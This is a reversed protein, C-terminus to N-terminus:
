APVAAPPRGLGLNTKGRYVTYGEKELLPELSNEGEPDCRTAVGTSVITELTQAVEEVVRLVQPVHEETTKLEV